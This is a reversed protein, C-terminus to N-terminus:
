VNTLPHMEFFVAPNNIQRFELGNERLATFILRAFEPAAYPSFTVVGSSRGTRALWNMLEYGEGGAQTPGYFLDAGKFQTATLNKAVRNVCDLEQQLTEETLDKQCIKYPYIIFPSYIDHVFVSVRRPSKALLQKTYVQAFSNQHLADIFFLDIEQAILQGAETKLHDFIDLQYFDWRNPESYEKAIYTPAYDHLDFSSLKGVGNERLASLIWRTSVGCLAGIEVVHNPKNERIMIYLMSAEIQGISGTCKTPDRIKSFERGRKFETQLETAYKVILQEYHQAIIPADNPDFIDLYQQTPFFSSKESTIEVKTTKPPQGFTLYVGFWVVVLFLLLLLSRPMKDRTSRSAATPPKKPIAMTKPNSSNM